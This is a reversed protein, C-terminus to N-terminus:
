KFSILFISIIIMVSALVHWLNFTEKLFVFGLISGVLVTGGMVLPIAVSAQVGKSYVFFYTIEALGVAIGALIAFIVGKQSIVLDRGSFKMYILVIGGILAAVIQLIVAGVVQNISGSAVKIFFNYLSFFLVTLLIIFMWEM